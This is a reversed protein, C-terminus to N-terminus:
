YVALQHLHSQRTPSQLDAQFSACFSCTSARDDLADVPHHVFASIWHLHDAVDHAPLQPRFNIWINHSCSAQSSHERMERLRMGNLTLAFM